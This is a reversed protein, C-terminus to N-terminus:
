HLEKPLIFSFQCGQELNEVTVSGGLKDFALNFVLNLGLGTHGLGRKTTVFPDFVKDLLQPDIGNGDDQFDLYLNSGQEWLKITVLGHDRGDFGHYHANSMLNTILQTWAGPYTIVELRKPLDLRIDFHNTDFMTQATGVVELMLAALDCDVMVDTNSKVAVSKFNGLLDNAKQLNNQILEHAEKADVLYRELQEKKLTGTSLAQETARLRELVTTSATVCIGIPTNVEHSVGAVLQGLAAMKESQVLGSQMMKLEEITNSLEETRKKVEIELTQNLETLKFEAQNRKAIDERLLSSTSNIADVLEDLENPRTRKGELMLKQELSRPSFNRYYGVIRYIHRTVLVYFIALICFAAILTKFFQTVLIIGVKDV